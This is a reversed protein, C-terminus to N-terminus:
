KQSLNESNLNITQLSRLKLKVPTNEFKLINNFLNPIL